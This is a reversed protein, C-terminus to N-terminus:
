WNFRVGLKGTWAQSDKNLNWQYGANAYISSGRAVQRSLGLNIRGPRASTPRSCSRGPRRRSVPGPTTWSSTRATSGSGPPPSCRPRDAPQSVFNVTAGTTPIAPLTLSNTLTAAGLFNTTSNDTINVGNLSGGAPVTNQTQAAAPQTVLLAGATVLATTTILLARRSKGDHAGMSSPPWARDGHMLHRAM